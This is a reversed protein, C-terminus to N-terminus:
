RRRRKHGIKHINILDSEVEIDKAGTLQSLCKATDWRLRGGGTSLFPTTPGQGTSTSSEDEDGHATREANALVQAHTPKAGKKKNKSANAAARAAAAAM